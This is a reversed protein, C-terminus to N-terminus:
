IAVKRTHFHCLPCRGCIPADWTDTSPASDAFSYGSMPPFTTEVPPTRTVPRRAGPVEPLIKSWAPQVRNESCISVLPPTDEYEAPIKGDVDNGQHFAFRYKFSIGSGKRVTLAVAQKDALRELDHRRFPNAAFLGQSLPLCYRPANQLKEEKGATHNERM